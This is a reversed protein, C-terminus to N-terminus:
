ISNRKSWTESQCNSHARKREGPVGLPPRPKSGPRGPLPDGSGKGRGAFGQRSRCISTQKASVPRRRRDLCSKAQTLGARASALQAERALETAATSEADEISGAKKEVLRKARVRRPSPM